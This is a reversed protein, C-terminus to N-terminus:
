KEGPAAARAPASRRQAPLAADPMTGGLMILRRAAEREVLAKLGERLVVSRETTGIADSAEKLLEDDLTVTTRM